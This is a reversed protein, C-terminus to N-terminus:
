IMNAAYIRYLGDEDDAPLDEEHNFGEGAVADLWSARGHGELAIADDSDLPPVDELQERPMDDAVGEEQAMERLHAKPSFFLMGLSGSDEHAAGLRVTREGNFEDNRPDHFRSAFSSAMMTVETPLGFM